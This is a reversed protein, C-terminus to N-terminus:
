KCLKRHIYAKAEGYSFFAAVPESLLYVVYHTYEGARMSRAMRIEYSEM